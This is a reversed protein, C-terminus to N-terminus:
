ECGSWGRLEKTPPPATSWLMRADVCKMTYMHNYNFRPFPEDFASGSSAVSISVVTGSDAYKWTSSEFNYDGAYRSYGVGNKGVKYSINISDLVKNIFYLNVQFYAAKIPPLPILTIGALRGLHVPIIPPFNKADLYLDDCSGRPSVCADNLTGTKLGHTQFLAKARDLTTHGIKLTTLVEIIKGTKKEAIM